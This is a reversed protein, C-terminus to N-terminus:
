LGFLYSLALEIRKNISDINTTRISIANQYDKNQLLELRKEIVNDVFPKEGAIVTATMISDFITPNFKNVIKNKDIASINNFAEDGLNEYIKHITSEFTTKMEEIYEIKYNISMFDNLFKKLSISTKRESKFDYSSFALFRLIFEMDRMRNDVSDMGFLERWEINDNLEFLLKNVPKSQYVCNRIEQATLARGSTNIREFIQYMGTDGEKPSDQTFIIAHITTNRIKRQESPTLELFAKGRWRKNFKKSTSLKFIKKDDSFIGEIFDYVTMIRQYGDIILRKEEEAEALFISPVPLGLLLSEIFRSAEERTWVYKRQLEPKLLDGDRYMSTLERFSLDAGWSRITYIDDDSYFDDQEEETYDIKSEEYEYLLKFYYQIENNELDELKYVNLSTLDPLVIKRVLAYIDDSSNIYIRPKKIQTQEQFELENIENSLTDVLEIRENWLTPFNEKDRYDKTPSFYEKKAAILYDRLDSKLFFSNLKFNTGYFQSLFNGENGIYLKAEGKGSGIKNSNFVTCDPINVKEHIELIKFKKSDIEIINDL